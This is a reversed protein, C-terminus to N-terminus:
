RKEANSVGRNKLIRSAQYHEIVPLGFASMTDFIQCYQPPLEEVPGKWDLVAAHLNHQDWANPNEQNKQIWLKILRRSSANNRFFLTGSLLEVGYRFHAAFDANTQDFVLPYRHMIADADIWVIDSAAFVDLMEGIFDAKFHTNAQWSGLDPVQQVCHNVCFRNLSCILRDALKAYESDTFYSVVTFGM